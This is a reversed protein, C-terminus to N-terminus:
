YTRNKASKIVCGPETRFQVIDDLTIDSRFDYRYTIMAPPESLDPVREVEHLNIVTVLLSLTLAYTLHPSVQGHFCQGFDHALLLVWSDATLSRLGVIRSHRSCCWCPRPPPWRPSVRAWHRSPFTRGLSIQAVKYACWLLGTWEDNLTCRGFLSNNAKRPTVAAALNAEAWSIQPVGAHEM